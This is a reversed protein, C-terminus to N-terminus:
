YNRYFAQIRGILQDYIPKTFEIFLDQPPPPLLERQQCLRKQATNLARDDGNYRGWECTWVFTGPFKDHSLIRQNRGDMIRMALLGKSEVNKIYHYLTARVTGYVPDDGKVGGKGIQVSDKSLKTVTEKVFHQGVVFDDFELMVVHDPTQLGSVHAEKPTYFRVFENVRYNALYGDIQDQFFANSLELLRSHMPIPEVVVKLTAHFRAEEMKQEVDRFNRRYNSAERFHFFADRASQRTKIKMAREGMAYRVEAAKIAAQGRESDYSRANKALRKCVPCRQIEGYLRNLADYERVVSEWKFEASSQKFRKVNDLHWAKTLPWGKYFTSKAKRNDPNKRLRKIALMMAEDYQGKEFQNKGSRCGAIGLALILTAFIFHKKM